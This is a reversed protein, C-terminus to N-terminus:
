RRAAGAPAPPAGGIIRVLTQQLLLAEDLQSGVLRLNCELLHDMARALEAASYHVCQQAARYLVFPNLALPNFQKTKPLREVPIKELAAKFPYYEGGAKVWGLRLLEKAFLMARVKTILGYLLGIESRKKDFQLEWLEEDLRKLAVPLNRDGLADGLAFARAQKQRTVVTEVDRVEIRAREGVFLSLKETESALLRPNPGVFTVLLALAEGTAEKKRERLLTVAALECKDAWNKDELSWSAFVEVAGIKEVTKYFTKRKDVKGASIILRIKDWPFAKLEQALEVLAGTVAASASTRDDALFNCDKFWVAKGSGFFPLTQLAERLKGIATLAAGANAATADITEHDMGGLEASWEQFLARARQQVGLDDEGHILVLSASQAASPPM